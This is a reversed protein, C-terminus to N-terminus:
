AAQGAERELSGIPLGVLDNLIKFVADKSAEFEKRGMEKQSQSRATYQLVVNNKVLVISCDDIPRIFAAVRQAEANTLTVISREDRFGAKILCKKRLAETTPFQDALDEPLNKWCEKLVAFFHGRSKQSVEDVPELQYCEGVVFTEDARNAFRSLPVMSEGDWRFVIPAYRSM